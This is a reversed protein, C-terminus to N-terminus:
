IEYDAAFKVGKSQNNLAPHLRLRGKGVPVVSVPVSYTKDIEPCYVLFVDVEDTYGKSSTTHDAWKKDRSATDWILVGNRVRGTKCQARVLATGNDVVYDCRQHGGFPVFVTCGTKVLHALIIAETQSGITSTNM